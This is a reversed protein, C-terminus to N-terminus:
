VYRMVLVRRQRGPEQPIGRHIGSQDSLVLSGAPALIPTVRQVDVFPSETPSKCQSGILKNATRLIPDDHTGVVYCYPGDALESVDTLYVFGKLNRSFTDVHFGRTKTIEKNLYLNLNAPSCSEEYDALIRLLWQNEFHSRLQPGSSLLRDVNFIDVMGQDQGQRISAVPKDHQAMDTYTKLRPSDAQILIQDDEFPKNKRAYQHVREMVATLDAQAAEIEDRQLYNPVIVCGHQALLQSVQQYDQENELSNVSLRDIRNQLNVPDLEHLYSLAIDNLYGLEKSSLQKQDERTRSIELQMNGLRWKM